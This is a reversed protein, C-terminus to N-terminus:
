AEPADKCFEAFNQELQMLAQQDEISGTKMISDLRKQFPSETQYGSGPQGSGASLKDEGASSESGAKRTGGIRDLVRMWTDMIGMATRLENASLLKPIPRGMEDLLPRGSPDHQILLKTSLKGFAELTGVLIQYQPAIKEVLDVARKETEIEGAKQKIEEVQEDWGGDSRWRHLTGRNVELEEGLAALSIKGLRDLYIQRAKERKEGMKEKGRLPKKAKKAM